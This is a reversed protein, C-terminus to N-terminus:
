YYVPSKGLAIKLGRLAHASDGVIDLYRQTDAEKIAEITEFAGAETLLAVSNAVASAYPMLDAATPAGTGGWASVRAHTELTHGALKLRQILLPIEFDSHSALGADIAALEIPFRYALLDLQEQVQASGSASGFGRLRAHLVGQILHAGGCTFAFIGQKRKAFSGGSAKAKSLFDTAETLAAGVQDTIDDLSHQYGNADTWTTGLPSWSALAFLSWPLDNATAATLAGKTRFPHDALTSQYLDSIPHKHGKALVIRQHKVGADALAKLLLDPHPEIRIPGRREPFRLQWRGKVSVHDAYSAFLWDVADAGNTLVLGPGLAVLGHGIAWPNAPDAAHTRVVSELTSQATEIRADAILAPTVHRAQGPGTPDPTNLAPAAQITPIEPAPETLCSVMMLLLLTSVM